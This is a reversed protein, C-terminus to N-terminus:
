HNRDDSSSSQQLVTVFKSKAEISTLLHIKKKREVKKVASLVAYWFRSDLSSDTHTIQTQINSFNQRITIMILESLLQVTLQAKCWRANQKQNDVTIEFLSLNKATYFKLIYDTLFKPCCITLYKVTSIDILKGKM